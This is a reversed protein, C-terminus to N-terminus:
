AHSHHGHWAITLLVSSEEVAQLAHPVDRDLVLVQGPALEFSAEGSRVRVHGDVGHITMRGETRHEDIRAGKELVMLVLRVDGTRVLTKSLHRRGGPPISTRMQRIEEPLDLRAVPVMEPPALAEDIEFPVGPQPPIVTKQTM